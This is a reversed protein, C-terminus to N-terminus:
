EAARKRPRGHKELVRYLRSQPWGAAISIAKRDAHPHSADAAVVTLERFTEFHTLIRSVEATVKNLDATTTAHSPPEVSRVGRIALVLHEAVDPSVDLTHQEGQPDTYIFSM